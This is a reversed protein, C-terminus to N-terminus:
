SKHERAYRVATDGLAKFLGSIAGAIKDCPNSDSTQPATESQGREESRSETESRQGDILSITETLLVKLCSMASPHLTHLHHSLAMRLAAQTEDVKCELASPTHGPPFGPWSHATGAAYPYSGGYQQNRPQFNGYMPPQPPTHMSTFKPPLKPSAPAISQKRERVALELRTLDAQSIWVPTSLFPFKVSLLPPHSPDGGSRIVVYDYASEPSVELRTFDGDDDDGSLRFSWRDGTLIFEDALRGSSIQIASFFTM